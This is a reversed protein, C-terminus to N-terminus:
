AFLMDGPKVGHRACWAAYLSAYSDLIFDERGRGIRAAIQPIVAPPAEIEVYVGIPAEDLAISAADMLYEERYKQGRFFARYGLSAIIAGAVDADGVATELELRSKVPGPLVPGKFTILGSAGDRRLRLTSQARLLQRDDTDFLLDDILRRSAVLRGGAGEIARRAAEVSEFALKVEHEIM